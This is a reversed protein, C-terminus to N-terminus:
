DRINGDGATTMNKANTAISGTGVIQNCLSTTSVLTQVVRHFARSCLVRGERDVDGCDYLESYPIGRDFMLLQERSFKKWDKDKTLPSTSIVAAIYGQSTERAFDVTCYVDSLSATSLPTRFLVYHM